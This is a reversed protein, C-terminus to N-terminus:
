RHRPSSAMLMRTGTPQTNMAESFSFLSNIPLGQAKGAPRCQCFKVSAQVLARM